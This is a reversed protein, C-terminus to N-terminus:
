KNVPSQNESQSEQNLSEQFENFYKVRLIMLLCIIISPMDLILHALLIFNFQLSVATVTLIFACISFFSYCFFWNKTKVQLVIFAVIIQIATVTAIPITISIISNASNKVKLIKSKEDPPVKFKTPDVQTLHILAYISIGLSINSLLYIINLIIFLIRVIIYVCDNPEKLTLKNSQQVNNSSESNTTVNFPTVHNSNIKYTADLSWAVRSLM